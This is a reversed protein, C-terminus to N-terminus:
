LASGQARAVRKLECVIVGLTKAWRDVDEVDTGKWLDKWVPPAARPEENTGGQVIEVFDVFEGDDDVVGGVVCRAEFDERVRNWFWREESETLGRRKYTVVVHGGPACCRALCAALDELLDSDYALDSALILDFQGLSLSSPIDSWSLPTTRRTITFPPSHACSTSTQTSTSSSSLFLADNVSVNERVLELASELDTLVIDVNVDGHCTRNDVAVADQVSASGGRDPGARFNWEDFLHSQIALGAVTGLLGTGTSLDLVRLPTSRTPGLPTSKAAHDCTSAEAPQAVTSTPASTITTNETSQSFLYRQLIPWCPNPLSPDTERICMFRATVFASDWVKSPIGQCTPRLHRPLICVTKPSSNGFHTTHSFCVVHPLYEGGGWEERVRVTGGLRGPVTWTRWTAVELEVSNNESEGLQASATALMRPHFPGLSLPVIPQPNGPLHAQQKVRIHLTWSIDVGYRELQEIVCVILPGKGGVLTASGAHIEHTNEENGSLSPSRYRLELEPVWVAEVPVERWGERDVDFDARRRLGHETALVIDLALSPTQPHNPSFSLLPSSSHVRYCLTKPLRLTM